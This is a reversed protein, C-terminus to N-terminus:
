DAPRQAYCINEFSADATRAVAHEEVDLQDVCAVVAVDPRLAVVAGDGIRNAKLALQGCLNRARQFRFESRFFPRTKIGSGSSVRLGVHQVKRPKPSCIIDLRLLDVHLGDRKIWPKGQSVGSSGHAINPNAATCPRTLRSPPSLLCP